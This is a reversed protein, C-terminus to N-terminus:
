KTPVMEVREPQAPRTVPNLKLHALLAEILKELRGVQSVLNPSLQVALPTPWGHQHQGTVVQELKCLRQYADAPPISREIRALRERTAKRM